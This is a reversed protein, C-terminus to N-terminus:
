IDVGFIFPLSFAIISLGSGLLSVYIIVWMNYIANSIAAQGTSNGMNCIEIDPTHGSMADLCHLFLGGDSKGIPVLNTIIIFGNVNAFIMFKDCDLFGNLYLVLGGLVILINGIVGSLVITANKEPSLLKRKKINEDDIIPGSACFIIFFSMGARVGYMEFMIVHMLEHFFMIVIMSLAIFHPTDSGFLLAIGYWVGYSIVMTVFSVILVIIRNKMMKVGKKIDSQIKFLLLFTYCSAISKDITLEPTILVLQFM